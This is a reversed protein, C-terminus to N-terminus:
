PGGTPLRWGDLVSLPDTFLGRDHDDRAKEGAGACPCENPKCEECICDPCRCAPDNPPHEVACVACAHVASQEDAHATHHTARSTSETADHLPREAM